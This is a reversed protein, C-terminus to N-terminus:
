GLNTPKVPTVLSASTALSFPNASSVPSVLAIQNARGTPNALIVLSTSHGAANAPTAHGGGREGWGTGQFASEPLAPYGM